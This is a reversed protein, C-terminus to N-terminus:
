RHIIYVWKLTLLYYVCSGTPFLVDKSTALLFARHAFKFFWWSPQHINILSKGWFNQIKRELDEIEKKTCESIEKGGGKCQSILEYRKKAKRLRYKLEGMSNVAYNKVVGYIGITGIAAATFIAMKM